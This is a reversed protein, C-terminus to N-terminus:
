KSKGFDNTMSKNKLKENALALNLHLVVHLVVDVTAQLVVHLVSHLVPHLFSHSVPHPEIQLVGLPWLVVTSKDATCGRM